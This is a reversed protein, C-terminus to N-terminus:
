KKEKEPLNKTSLVSPLQNPILAAAAAVLAAAARRPVPTESSKSLTRRKLPTSYPHACVYLLPTYVHPSTSYLVHTRTRICYLNMQLVAIRPRATVKVFLVAIHKRCKLFVAIGRRKHGECYSGYDVGGDRYEQRVMLIHLTAQIYETYLSWSRRSM